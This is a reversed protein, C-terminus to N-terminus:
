FRIFFLCTNKLERKESVTQCSGKIVKCDDVAVQAVSMAHTLVEEVSSRIDGLMDTQIREKEDPNIENLKELAVDVAKLFSGVSTDLEVKDNLFICEELNGM